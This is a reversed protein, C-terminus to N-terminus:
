RRQVRVYQVTQMGEPLSPFGSWDNKDVRTQLWRSAQENTLCVHLEWRGKTALRINKQIWSKMKPVVQTQPYMLFFNHQDKVLVWLSYGSPLEGTYTGQMDNYVDSAIIEGEKPEAITLKFDITNKKTQETYGKTENQKTMQQAISKSQKLYESTFSFIIFLGGIIGIIVRTITNSTGIKVYQTEVKGILGLLLLLVGLALLLTQFTM